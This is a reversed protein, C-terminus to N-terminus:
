TENGHLVEKHLFLWREWKFLCRELLWVLKNAWPHRQLRKMQKIPFAWRHYDALIASPFLEQLVQSREEMTLDKNTQSMGGMDFVTIDLDVYCPKEEGLVIAKLFWKWDSVIKMSEDYLGYKRFLARRIYSPSHNLTGSFFDLFSIEQGAFSKDQFLMGGPMNKLMNGYLISPYGNQKLADFVKEIVMENVLYDGSNLFELYEGTAMQIGKNMANYIGKDSESVWKIREGFASEYHRIIAVSEDTSAGDIVVYEFEKCTQSLVSQM